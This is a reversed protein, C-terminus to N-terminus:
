GDAKNERRERKSNAYSIFREFEGQFWHFDLKRPVGNRAIVVIDYCGELKQKNLRFVEKVVRKFRNRDVSNKLAKKSVTVGLRTPGRDKRM